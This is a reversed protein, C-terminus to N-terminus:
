QKSISYFLHGIEFLRDETLTENNEIADDSLLISRILTLVAGKSKYIKPAGIRGEDIWTEREM